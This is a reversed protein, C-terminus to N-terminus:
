QTKVIVFYVTEVFPKREEAHKEMFYKRIGKKYKLFIYQLFSYGHASRKISLALSLEALKM